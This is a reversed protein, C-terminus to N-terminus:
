SLSCFLHCFYDGGKNPVFVTKQGALAGGMFCSAQQPLKHAPRQCALFRNENWILAAVVETM